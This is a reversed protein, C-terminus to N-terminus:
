AALEVEVPCPPRHLEVVFVASRTSGAGSGNTAAPAVRAAVPSRYRHGTPTTTVVDHPRGLPLDPPVAPVPQAHWDPAQKTYDCHECLGQSDHFATPGGSQHAVAHDVHRIPADCWPTRCTGDRLRVLTRLGAPFTRCRSELGILSGSTPDAFTRRLWVRHHHALQRALEADVPGHGELWAAGDAGGLLQADTLVVNLMVGVTDPLDPLRGGARSGREDAPLSGQEDGAPQGANARTAAAPDISHRNDMDCGAWTIPDDEAGRVVSTTSETGQSTPPTDVRQEGLVRTVLTDAMVQGRSRDDGRARATDAAGSLAGFVAVGDAVPLLASLRSMTDPAPQLGVHRESEAKRRRAVVSTPDLQAAWRACEAALTRDGKGHLRDVDSAVERDVRARHEASLMATERAIIQARRQSLVGRRFADATAPLERDLVLALQHLQQGRHPSVQRALAVQGAIGRGRRAMPVGRAAQESRQSADFVATIRAQSAQAANTLRELASLLDVRAADDCPLGGNTLEDVWSAVTGATVAVRTPDAPHASPTDTHRGTEIAM